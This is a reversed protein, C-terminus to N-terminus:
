KLWITYPENGKKYAKGSSDTFYLTIKGIGKKIKIPKKFRKGRKEMELKQEKIDDNIFYNVYFKEPLEELNRLSYVVFLQKKKRYYRLPREPGDVKVLEYSIEGDEVSIIVYHYFGGEKTSVRLPGGSGGSIIQLIGKEKSVSFM